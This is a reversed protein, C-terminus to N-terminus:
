RGAAPVNSVTAAPPASQWLTYGPPLEFLAPDVPEQKVSVLTTVNTNGRAVNQSRVVM